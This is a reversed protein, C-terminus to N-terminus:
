MTTRIAGWEVAGSEEEAGKYCWAGEDFRESVTLECQLAVRLWGDDGESVSDRFPAPCFNCCLVRHFAVLLRIAEHLVCHHLQASDDSLDPAVDFTERLIYVRCRM